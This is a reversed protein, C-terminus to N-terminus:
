AAYRRLEDVSTAITYLRDVRMMRFLSHIEPRLGYIVTPAKLRHACNRIDICMGLGMSALTHVQSLDLVVRRVDGRLQELRERVQESIVPAERQGVSPGVPQVTLVGASFTLRVYQARHHDIPSPQPGWM